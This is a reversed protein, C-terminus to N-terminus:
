AATRRYVVPMERPGRLEPWREILAGILGLLAEKPYKEDPLDLAEKAKALVRTANERTNAANALARFALMRTSRHLPRLLTGLLLSLNEAALVRAREDDLGLTRYALAMVHIEAAEVLDRVSRADALYAPASRAFLLRALRNDRILQNYNHITFAPIRNLVSAARRCFRVDDVKLADYYDALRDAEALLKRNKPAWRNSVRTAIRAAVHDLLDDEKAAILRM